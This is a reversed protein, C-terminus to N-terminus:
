GSGESDSNVRFNSEVRQPFLTSHAKGLRVQGQTTVWLKSKCTLHWDSQSPSNSECTLNVQHTQSVLWISKITQTYVASFFMFFCENQKSNQDLKAIYLWCVQGRDLIWPM